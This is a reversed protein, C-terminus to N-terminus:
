VTWSVRERCSARGIKYLAHLDNNALRFRLPLIMVDAFVEKESLGKVVVSREGSRFEQVALKASIGFVISCVVLCVGFVIAAIRDM